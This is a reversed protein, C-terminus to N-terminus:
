RRRKRGALHVGGPRPLEAAREAAREAEIREARANLLLEAHQRTGRYAMACALLALILAGFVLAFPVLLDDPAAHDRARDAM